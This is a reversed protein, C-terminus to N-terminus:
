DQTSSKLFRIYLLLYFVRGWYINAAGILSYDVKHSHKFIDIGMIITATLITGFLLLNGLISFIYGNDDSFVGGLM